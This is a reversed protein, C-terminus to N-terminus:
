LGYRSAIIQYALRMHKYYHDIKYYVERAIARQCTHSTLNRDELISQWASEDDILKLDFSKQLVSKPSTVDYQEAICIKKLTKWFLEGCFEFRQITADRVYSKATEPENVM